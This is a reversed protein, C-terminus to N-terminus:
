GVCERVAQTIRTFVPTWQRSSDQRFLRMTPYWCTTEGEALWRWDPVHRLAAFVPRGLAGALHVPMSDISVVLDLHSLVAATDLLAEAGLDDPDLPREIRAGLGLNDIERAAAGKQLSILRVGPIDAFRVFEALPVTNSVGEWLIGLKFGEDGIRQAWRAAREPEARLYPVQNPVTDPTLDLMQMVSMLPLWLMRRRDAALEEMGTVVREVGALTRMLPALVPRTLLTVAYGREALLAAYRGFHVTDGLGQESLLVLRFDGPPEGNWRPADLPKYAAEPLAARREFLPWANKWDGTQLLLRGLAYATTADDGDMAHAREILERAEAFRGMAKVALGKRAYALALKPEVGIVEDYIADAEEFRELLALAGARNLLLRSDHPALTMARDFDALAERPRRLKVLLGGRNILDPVSRPNLALARDFAALAERPQTEALVGARGGHADAFDPDAAIAQDFNKLADQPQGLRDYAKGILNFARAQGPRFGLSRKAIEIGQAYEGEQCVMAAIYYLADANEPDGRLVDVYREMALAHEGRRHHFLGQELLQAATAPEAM